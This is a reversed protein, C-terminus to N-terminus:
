RHPISVTKIEEAQKDLQGKLEEATKKFEALLEKLDM